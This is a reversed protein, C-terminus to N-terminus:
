CDSGNHFFVHRATYDDFAIGKGTTKGGLDIEVHDLVLGSVDHEWSFAKIGYWDDTDVLKVNRITIHPAAITIQGTVLKNEYVQGPTSLTVSGSVPALTVGPMVGTNTVDPFGCASPKPMCLMARAQARSPTTVGPDRTSAAAYAALGLCLAALCGLVKLVHSGLSM